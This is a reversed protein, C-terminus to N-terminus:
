PLKIDFAACTGLLERRIAQCTDALKGRDAACFLVTNAGHRLIAHHDISLAVKDENASIWAFKVGNRANDLSIKLLRDKGDPRAFFPPNKIYLAGDKVNAFGYELGDGLAVNFEQAARHADQLLANVGAANLM